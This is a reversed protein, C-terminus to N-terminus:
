DNPYMGKPKFDVWLNEFDYMEAMDDVFLEFRQAVNEAVARTWRSRIGGNRCRWIFWAVFVENLDHGNKDLVSEDWTTRGDEIKWANTNLIIEVM